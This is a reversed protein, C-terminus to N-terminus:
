GVKASLMEQLVSWEKRLRDLASASEDLQDEAGMQELQYSLDAVREAGLQAMSGKLSHAAQRLAPADQDSVAQVVAEVMAPAEQLIMEQLMALMDRDGALRELALDENLIQVEKEKKSESVAPESAPTKGVQREMVKRVEDVRIPKSVYDNMGAKLFRERDGKMAHATMAVIPLHMWLPNKRIAATAELGDMVPMQVDMFILDPLGKELTELAERGNAAVRVKHGAKKLMTGAVKQNVPNDEVLLVDLEGLSTPGMPQPPADLRGTKSEVRRFERSLATILHVRRVPKTLHSSWGMRRNRVVTGLNDLTALMIVPPPVHELDLRIAQLVDLGRMDPLQASMLILDPCRGKEHCAELRAMADQGTEVTFADCGLSQLMERIDERSRSENEVVLIRRGRLDVDGADAMESDAKRFVATFHFSSGSGVASEAWIVGGMKEVLDRSIALGLGTGGYKRTTSSDAQSFAQFITDLKHAPIGIGTDVVSCHLGAKVEDDSALKVQMLVEGKETFKIANGVLNLFIQQVRHPDGLLRKPLKPDLNLILDLGKEKAKGSMIKSVRDLTEELDFEIEELSLQGAEIKSLDLIDNLLTLLHDASGQITSLYDGVENDRNSGLALETMGIIGNMPTRIEHSMNALFESKIQNASEAEKLAASLRDNTEQMQLRTNQRYSRNRRLFYAWIGMGLMGVSWLALHIPFISARHEQSGRLFPELDLSLSIGGAISGVEYYESKHCSLCAETTPSPLFYRFRPGSETDVAGWAESAGARLDLMAQHEWDDPANEPLIPDLSVNRARFHLLANPLEHISRAMEGGALKQLQSGDPTVLLEKGPIAEHNEGIKVYVGGVHTNWDRIQREHRASIEAAIRASELTESNQNRFNWFLSALIAASWMFMLLGAYGISHRIFHLFRRESM